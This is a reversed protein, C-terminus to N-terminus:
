EVVCVWKCVYSVCCWYAVLKDLGVFMSFQVSSFYLLRGWGMGFSVLKFIMFDIASLMCVYGFAYLLIM